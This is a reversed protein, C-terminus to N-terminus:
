SPTIVVEFTSTGIQIHDGSGLAVGTNTVAHENVFTGNRSGKDFIFYSGKEYRLYAHNGSVYEDGAILLDNEPSAGIHLIEKEVPFRQGEVPGSVGLLIAAPQGPKPAPFYYSGVQTRRPPEPLVIPPLQPQPPVIPPQNIEPKNPVPQETEQPLQDQKKTHHYLLVALGAGLLVVGLLWLWKFISSPPSPPPPPAPAVISGPIQIRLTPQGLQTLEISANQLTRGSKDAKYKFYVVLSPTELLRKYIVELAVPLPLDPTASQFQGGTTDSLYRLAEEYQKAIKGHRITDIPIGLTTSKTTVSLSGGTSGEDKGDSIVIIRRRKPLDAGQFMDLAKYITQYLKTKHGRITLRRVAEDLQDRTEEFLSEPKDEDAFSILAIKDGPRDRAKGLFRLLAEKIDELPRHAMTGSVDVCIILALDELSDRFSKIEQAPAVPSGDSLLHFDAATPTVGPPVEIVVSVAGPQKTYVPGVRIQEALVLSTHFVLFFSIGVLFRM